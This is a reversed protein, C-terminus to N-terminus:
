PTRSMIARLGDLDLCSLFHSIYVKGLAPELDSWRSAQIRDGAQALHYATIPRADVPLRAGDPSVTWIIRRGCRPALCETIATNTTTPRRRTTM